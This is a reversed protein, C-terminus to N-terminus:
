NCTRQQLEELFLVISKAGAADPYSALELPIVQQLSHNGYRSLEQRILGALRRAAIEAGQRPTEPCLLCLCHGGLLAIHDCNRANLCVLQEIEEILSRSEGGVLDRTFRLDLVILSVFVRYREARKLEVSARNFFSQSIM